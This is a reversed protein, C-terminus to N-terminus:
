EVLVVLPKRKGVVYTALVALAASSVNKVAHITEAPVFFVEGANVTTPPKGEIQYGLSGELVYNIEEGPHTHKFAPAQSSVDVRNHVVERAPISLDHQQLDTREIGSAQQETSSM